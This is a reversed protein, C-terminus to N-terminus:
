LLSKLSKGRQARQQGKALKSLIAEEEGNSSLVDDSDQDPESDQQSESSKEVEEGDVKKGHDEGDKGLILAPPTIHNGAKAEPASSTEGRHQLKPDRLSSSQHLTVMSTEKQVSQNPKTVQLFGKVAWNGGSAKTGKPTKSRRRGRRPHPVSPNLGRQSNRHFNEELHTTAKCGLIFFEWSNKNREIVGNPIKVCSEGSELTFATGRKKLPKTSGKFRNAWSDAGASKSDSGQSTLKVSSPKVTQETIPPDISSVVEKERLQALKSSPEVAYEIQTNDPVDSADKLSGRVEVSEVVSVTDVGTAQSNPVTSSSPIEVTEGSNVKPGLTKDITTATSVPNVM